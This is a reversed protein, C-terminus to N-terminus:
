EIVKRMFSIMRLLKTTYLSFIFIIIAILPLSISHDCVDRFLVRNFVMLWLGHVLFIGFLDKRIYEIFCIVKTSIRTSNMKIFVFLATAMMLVHPSINFLFKEDAIGRYFSLAVSGGVTIIVGILGTLYIFISKKKDIDRTSLYYGLLFYGAYGIIWNMSFLNSLQPVEMILIFSITIYGLWLILTYRLLKDNDVVKRLIPILLYVGVLMPLFWLHFQPKFSILEINFKGHSLTTFLNTLILYALYWFIYVKLLRASYKKLIVQYSVEKRPNLFLVGSIMVFIPVSWRVLSDFFVAIFWNHEGVPLHYDTGGVHLFIVGFTAIVRLVDLWVVRENSSPKKHLQNNVQTHPTPTIVHNEDLEMETPM